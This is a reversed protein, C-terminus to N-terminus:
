APSLKVADAEVGARKALEGVLIAPVKADARQALCCDRVALLFGRIADPAGPLAEAHAFFQEWADVHDGYADVVYLGALYEALPDLAFRIQNRGAGVTQILRLRDELYSLMAEADQEGGLAALVDERPAPTPLYTRKLCEWAIVKAVRHVTRDEQKPHDIGRNVENVYSLMLDPITDPLVRAAPGEKAAIMQEAYLKALLVTIDRTGVMLSLRRCAEFFEVDDFYERKGRQTLYAELFSSLRNGQIRLPKVMTPPVGGLQEELRSTIILANAPFEPHGPRIEQRTAEPMESFHDVIVLIRRRQLLRLLFEEPIPDEEHTLARLEGRITDIFPHPHDKDKPELAQEILVPLMGHQPCLRETPRDVMAWRAIQCALSTKGAGGEGWILLCALTKDFTPQLQEPTLHPIAQGDLIVPVAIHVARQSVTTKRQFEARATTLHQTVWADLIRCRYHFFGVLLVYRLPIKIEGPWKLTYDTFPKLAENIRYLWLPRLWYLALWCLLLTPYVAIGASLYRHEDMWQWLKERLNKWWLLELFEVTWSMMAGHERVDADAHALLANRAAKLPSIMHTARADRAARAITDLTDAAGARVRVDADKLAEILVPVAGSAAPGIGGLAWSAGARVDAEADKLAEILAPIAAPGIGRLAESAGERVRGDADKLAEILAPILRSPDHTQAALGHSILLASGSFCLYIVEVLVAIRQSTHRM